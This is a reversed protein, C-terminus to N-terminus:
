PALNRNELNTLFASFGETTRAQLRSSTIVRVKNSWTIAYGRAEFRKVLDVDEHCPLPSFGGASLYAEASFSLNAGHIHRHNMNDQYHAMYDLRTQASLHSWNEISVVGCIMDTSQEHIHYLQQVLWDTTVLSDADTCALWTAGQTIAHRIGMDRAQGVCQYNGSIFDVNAAKVIELTNDTCNDLVVLLYTSVSPPLQAIAAAVSTLCHAITEAENHAPIVIGIKM